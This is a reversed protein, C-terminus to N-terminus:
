PLLAEASLLQRTVSGDAQIVKVPVCVARDVKFVEVFADLIAICLHNVYCGKVVFSDHVACVSIGQEKMFALIKIALQSDYNMLEMGKGMFKELSPYTDTVANVVQLPSKFDSDKIDVKLVRQISTVAAQFTQNNLLRIVGAKIVSLNAPTVDFGQHTLIHEYPNNEETLVGDLLNVIVIHCASIDVEVVDEGDITLQLRDEALLQQVGKGLTYLRGGKQMSQNFIRVYQNNIEEGKFIIEAETLFSNLERMTSILSKVVPNNLNLIKESKDANRVIVSVETKNHSSLSDKEVGEHILDQLKRTPYLIASKGVGDNHASWVGQVDRVYGTRELESIVKRLLDKGIRSPNKHEPEPRDTQYGVGYKKSAKRALNTLLVKLTHQQRTTTLNTEKVVVDYVSKISSPILINLNIYLFPKEEQTPEDQRLDQYTVLTM